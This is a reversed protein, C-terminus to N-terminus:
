EYYDMWRYKFFSRELIEGNHTLKFKINIELKEEDESHKSKIIIDEGKPMKDLDTNSLDVLFNDYNKLKLNEKNTLNLIKELTSNYKVEQMICYIIRHAEETKERMFESKINESILLSVVLFMSLIISVGVITEILISGRKKM